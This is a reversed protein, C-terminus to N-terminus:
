EGKVSVLMAETEEAPSARHTSKAKPFIFRKGTLGSEFTDVYYEGDVKVIHLYSRKSEKVRETTLPITMKTDENSGLYLITQGNSIPIKLSYEGPELVATGWHAGVPLDFSGQQANLSVATLGLGVSLVAMQVVRKTKSEM